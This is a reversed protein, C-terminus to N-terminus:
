RHEGGGYGGRVGIHQGEVRRKRNGGSDAIDGGRSGGTMVRQEEWTKEEEGYKNRTSIIPSHVVKAKFLEPIKTKDVRGISETRTAKTRVRVTIHLKKGLRAKATSQIIDTKGSKHCNPKIPRFIDLRSTNSSSKEKISSTERGFGGSPKLPTIAPLQLGFTEVVKTQTPKNARHKTV